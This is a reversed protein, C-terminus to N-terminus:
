QQYIVTTERKFVFNKSALYSDLLSKRILDSKGPWSMVEHQSYLLEQAVEVSEGGAEGVSLQASLSELALDFVHPVKDLGDGFHIRAVCFHSSCM